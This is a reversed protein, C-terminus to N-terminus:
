RFRRYGDASFDMQPGLLFNECQCREFASELSVSSSSVIFAFFVALFAALFAGAFFFGAFFFFYRVSHHMGQVSGDHQTRYTAAEEDTGQHAERTGVGRDGDRVSIVQIM